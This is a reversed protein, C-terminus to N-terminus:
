KLPVVGQEAAHPGRHALLGERPLAHQFPGRGCGVAFAVHHGHVRGGGHGAVVVVVERLGDVVVQDHALLVTFAEGIAQVADRAAYHM